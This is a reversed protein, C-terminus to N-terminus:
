KYNYYYIIKQILEGKENELNKLTIADVGQLIMMGSNVPYKCKIKHIEDEVEIFRSVMKTDNLPIKITPMRSNIDTFDFTINNDEIFLIKNNGYKTPTVCFLSSNSSVITHGILQLLVKEWITVEWGFLIDGGYRGIYDQANYACKNIRAGVFEKKDVFIPFGDPVVKKCANVIEETISEPTKVLVVTKM